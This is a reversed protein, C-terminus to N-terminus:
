FDMLSMEKNPSEFIRSVDSLLEEDEPNKVVQNVHTVISSVKSTASAYANEDVTRCSLIGSGSVNQNTRSGFIQRFRLM